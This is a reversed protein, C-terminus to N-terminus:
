SKYEQDLRKIEKLKKELASIKALAAMSFIFGMTGLSMGILGLAEMSNGGNFQM